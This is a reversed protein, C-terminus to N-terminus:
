KSKAPEQKPAEGLEEPHAKVYALFEQFRQKSIAQIEDLHGQMVKAGAAGAEKVLSPMRDLFRQGTPSSYFAILALADEHSLYKQYVPISAETLEDINIFKWAGEMTADLKKLAEPSANPHERLFSQHMGNLMQEKMMDIVAVVQRRSHMVDMLAVVDERSAQEEKPVISSNPSNRATSQQAFLTSTLLFLFAFAIRKRM